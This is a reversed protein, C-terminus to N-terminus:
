STIWSLAIINKANLGLLKLDAKELLVCPKPIEIKNQLTVLFQSNLLPENDKYKEVLEKQIAELGSQYQSYQAKLMHIKWHPKASSVAQFFTFLKLLEIQM